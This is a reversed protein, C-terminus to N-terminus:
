LQSESLTNFSSCQHTGTEKYAVAKKIMPYEQTSPCLGLGPGDNPKPHDMAHFLNKNIAIPSHDQAKLRWAVYQSANFRAATNDNWASM